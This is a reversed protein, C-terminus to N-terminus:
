RPQTIKPADHDPAPLLPRGMMQSIATNVDKKLMKEFNQLREIAGILGSRMAEFFAEREATWEVEIGDAGSRRLGSAPDDEDVYRYLHGGSKFRVAYTLAMAPSPSFSIDQRPIFHISASLNCKFNFVIVKSKTQETVISVYRTLVDRHIALLDDLRDSTIRDSRWWHRGHEYREGFADGSVLGLIHPQPYISFMGETAQFYVKEVIKEYTLDPQPIHAQFTKVQQGRSKKNTM